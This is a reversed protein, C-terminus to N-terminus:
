VEMTIKIYSATSYFTQFPATGFYLGTQLSFSFALVEWLEFPVAYENYLQTISKLDLSLEKSKERAINVFNSDNTSTINPDTGNSESAGPLDEARSVLAELEQKIKIQFRLVALKGELM